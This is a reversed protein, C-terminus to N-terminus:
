EVGKELRKQGGPGLRGLHTDQFHSGYKLGYGLLRDFGIHAAWILSLGLFPEQGWFWALVGLAVAGAYNHLANYAIAGMRPGALYGLFSIDPALFFVFFGMTSFGLAVYAFTAVAFMALGELRLLYLPGGRVAPATFFDKRFDTM